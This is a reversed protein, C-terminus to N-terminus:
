IYEVEIIETDGDHHPPLHKLIPYRTGQSPTFTEHDKRRTFHYKRRSLIKQIDTSMKRPSRRSPKLKIKTEYHFTTWTIKPEKSPDNTSYSSKSSPSVDSAVTSSMKRLKDDKLSETTQTGPLQKSRSVISSPSLTSKVSINMFEYESPDVSDYDNYVYAGAKEIPEDGSQYEMKLGKYKKKMNSNIDDDEDLKRIHEASDFDSDDCTTVCQIQTPSTACFDLTSQLSDNKTGNNAFSANKIPLCNDDGNNLMTKNALSMFNEVSCVLANYAKKLEEFDDRGNRSASKIKEKTKPMKNKKAHLVNKKMIQKTKIKNSPVQINDMVRRGKARRTSASLIERHALNKSRIRPQKTRMTMSEKRTASFDAYDEGDNENLSEDDGTDILDLSSSVKKASITQRKSRDGIAVIKERNTPQINDYTEGEEPEETSSNNDSDEFEEEEEMDSEVEEIKSSNDSPSASRVLRMMKQLQPLSPLSFNSTKNNLVGFRGSGEKVLSKKMDIDPSDDLDEYEYDPELNYYHELSQDKSNNEDKREGNEKNIRFFYFYM